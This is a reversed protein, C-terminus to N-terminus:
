FNINLGLSLSFLDPYGLQLDECNFYDIKDISFVNQAKAYIQLKDLKVKNVWKKPLNYYINVNRLKFFSGDAIWQTSTQYNNENSLTSLRPVNAFDRTEETWRIKDKMYWASVNASGNRLPRHVNEVNLLKTLGSIGNFAMDIGFGKYELGFNLGFVTKPVNTSHGIAVRDESDIRRDGNQDKYKIDGPRVM